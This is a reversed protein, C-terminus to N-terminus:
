RLHRARLAFSADYFAAQALSKRTNWSTIDEANLKKHGSKSDVAVSLPGQDLGAKDVSGALSGLSLSSLLVALTLLIALFNMM